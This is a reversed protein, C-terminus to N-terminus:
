TWTLRNIARAGRRRQTDFADDVWGGTVPTFPFDGGGTGGEGAFPGGAAETPSWVVWEYTSSADSNALLATAQGAVLTRTGSAVHVDGQSNAFTGTNVPGLYVRGRRRANPFGSGYDGKYSLCVAVEAPVATTAPPTFTWASSYIPTRPKTHSLDYWKTTVNGSCTAIAYMAEIAVYFTELAADFDTASVVPDTSGVTRAHWTNVVSDAPIQTSRELVVQGSIFSV